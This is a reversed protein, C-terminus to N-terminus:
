TVEGTPPLVNWNEVVTFLGRGNEYVFLTGFGTNDVRFRRSPEVALGLLNGLIARNVMAHGVIAVNAQGAALVRAVGVAVRTYVQEYSEGGPASANVDQVWAEHAAAFDRKVQSYELGEWEGLDIEAFESVLELPAGHHANFIEATQRARLLPSCFIAELPEARFHDALLAAGRQGNANLPRDIRGQLRDAENYDTLGHRILTIKKKLAAMPPNYQM